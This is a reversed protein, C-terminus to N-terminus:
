WYCGDDIRHRERPTEEPLVSVWASNYFDDHHWRSGKIGFLLQTEGGTHIASRGSKKIRAALPLSWAGAGILAVDFEEALARCALDELGEEWSSYPSPQLHWQLPCRLFRCRNQLAGWDVAWAGAPDHILPLRPLQQQMTQTFPSIVLWRYPAIQPLISKGLARMPINRSSPSIRAVLQGEYAALFPDQQWECLYDMAQIAKRMTANWSSFSQSEVPFFGANNALRLAPRRWSGGLGALQLRRDHYELGLIEATGIKGAAFVQRQSLLSDYAPIEDPPLPRAPPRRRATLRNNKVRIRLALRRYATGIMMALEGFNEGLRYGERERRIGRQAAPYGFSFLLRCWTAPVKLFLGLGWLRVTGRKRPFARVSDFGSIFSLWFKSARNANLHRVALKPNRIRTARGSFKLGHRDQLESGEHYGFRSSSPGLDKRMGGLQLYDKKPFFLNGELLYENSPLPHAVAGGMDVVGDRLYPGGFVLGERPFARLTAEAEKLWGPAPVCDDDLFALWVGRALGAGTNRALSVNNSSSALYRWAPQRQSYPALLAEGSRQPDNDVVLVEFPPCAEQRELAVLVQNLELLRRFTVVVVSFFPSQQPNNKSDIKGAEAGPDKM